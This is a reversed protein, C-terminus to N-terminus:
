EYAPPADEGGTVAYGTPDSVVDYYAPPAEIATDPVPVVMIAVDQQEEAEAYGPEETNRNEVYLEEDAGVADELSTVTYGNNVNNAKGYGFAEDLTSHMGVTDAGIADVANDLSTAQYETTVTSAMAAGFQNTNGPSQGGEYGSTDPSLAAVAVAGM